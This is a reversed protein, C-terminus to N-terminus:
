SEAPQRDRMFEFARQDHGAHDGALERFHAGAAPRPNERIHLRQEFRARRHRLRRTLDSDEKM